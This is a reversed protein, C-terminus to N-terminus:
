LLKCDPATSGDLPPKPIYLASQKDINLSRSGLLRSAMNDDFMTMGGHGDDDGDDGEVCRSGCGRCGGSSVLVAVLLVLVLVLLLVLVLM